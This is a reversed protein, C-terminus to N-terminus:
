TDNCNSLENVAASYFNNITISANYLATLLYSKINRVRTTNKDMCNLVYAIHDKELKLFRSKVVESNMNIGSIRITTRNNCITDLILELIEHIRESDYLSCLADYCINDKIIERYVHIADMAGKDDQKSSENTSIINSQNISEFEFFDKNLEEKKSLEKNVIDKNIQMQNEQTAENLIPNDLIPEELILENFVTENFFEPEDFEPDNFQHDNSGPDDYKFQPVEHIIYEAEKLQGQANRIRKHVIYGSTELEHIASRIADISEKNIHALGRMTYDWNEPLSLIQSLLGKAKLSINKNRLHHNSMITYNKNKEVRFISM